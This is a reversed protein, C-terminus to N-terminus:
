TSPQGREKVALYRKSSVCVAFRSMVPSAKDKMHKDPEADRFQKECEAIRHRVGERIKNRNEGEPLLVDMLFSEIRYDM